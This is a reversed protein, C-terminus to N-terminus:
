SRLDNTLPMGTARARSYTVARPRYSARSFPWRTKKKELLLRCVLYALSQLESTHEESRSRADRGKCGQGPEIAAVCAAGDGPYSQNGAKGARSRFLTTYSLTYINTTTTNSSFFVAHDWSPRCIAYSACSSSRRGYRRSIE